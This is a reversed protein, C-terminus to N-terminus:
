LFFKIKRKASFLKFKTKNEQKSQIFKFHKASIERKLDGLRSFCLIFLRM